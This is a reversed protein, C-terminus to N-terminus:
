GNNADGMEPLKIGDAFMVDHPRKQLHQGGDVVLTQGTMSPANVVFLVTRVIDEVTSGVGLLAKAHAKAFQEPTQAGSALTLGPAVGCVRVRPALALALVRTLGELGIKSATYSLFDPNENYVKQDLINVVVGAGDQAKGGDLANAFDRTLLVPARLNVAMHHDWTEASVTRADDYVFASANNVLCTVPGVAKTAQAVLRGTAVADALNCDVAAAEGGLAKIEAVVAAADADSRHYHVAVRWGAAALGMAIGRGMRQGAGTVLVGEPRTQVASTKSHGGTM